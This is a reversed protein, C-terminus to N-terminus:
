RVEGMQIRGESEKCADEGGLYKFPIVYFYPYCELIEEKTVGEPLDNLMKTCYTYPVEDAGFRKKFHKVGDMGNVLSGGWNWYKYHRMVADAMAAHILIHLPNISRFEEVTAPIMYDVTNNYYKLLLAAVPQDSKREYSVFLKYDKRATFEKIIDFERDKYPAGVSVMNERHVRKIFDFSEEEYTESWRCMEMSKRVQNRTKQHYLSFLDTVLTPLKTVMGIRSDTLYSGGTCEDFIKEVDYIDGQILPNTIITASLCNTMEAVKLFTEVLAKAAEENDAMVGPNSGFWPLSNLVTGYKGKRFFAPLIGTIENEHRTTIYWPLCEEGLLATLFRCFGLSANFSSHDFKKIYDEYAKEHEITLPNHM